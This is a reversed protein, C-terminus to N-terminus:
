ESNSLLNIIKTRNSHNEGRYLQIIKNEDNNKNIFNTDLIKHVRGQHEIEKQDKELLVVIGHDDYPITSLKEKVIGETLKGTGRDKKLEVLVKMGPQIEENSPYVTM